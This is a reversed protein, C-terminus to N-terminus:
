KKYKSGQRTGRREFEKEMRGVLELKKGLWRPQIRIERKGNGALRQIVMDPPLLELFDCVTSIYEDESMLNILGDKYMQHIKTGEMVALMHIKIGDIDMGALTKATEMMDEHTENPLGLIVHACIKLNREKTKRCAEQFCKFDHGRNIFQLTKDHVSQLGYEVQLFRNDTNYSAILDLKEDDVCDPRTGISMGVIDDIFVDDYIKKLENVPKYTNTYAQFYALFKNAHYRKRIKEMGTLLQERVSLSNSYLRSFSGSDDCFVCGDSSLTGDRNPCSFGADLTVKYVKEGFLSKLYEGFALFYESAM